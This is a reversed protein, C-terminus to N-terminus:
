ASCRCSTLAICARAAHALWSRPQKEAENRSEVENKGASQAKRYYVLALGHAGCRRWGGCGMVVRVAWEHSVRWGVSTGLQGTGEALTSEARTLCLRGGHPRFISPMRPQNKPRSQAPVERHQLPRPRIDAVLVRGRAIPRRLTPVKFHELPRPDVAAVPVRVRSVIRRPPRAGQFAAIPAPWRSRSPGPRTCSGLSSFCLLFFV